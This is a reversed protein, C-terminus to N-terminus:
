EGKYGFIEEIRTDAGIIDEPSLPSHVGWPTIPVQRDTKTQDVVIWATESAYDMLEISSSSKSFPGVNVPPEYIKRWRDKGQREKAGISLRIKKITWATGNYIDFEYHGKGDFYGHITIKDKENIPLVQIEYSVTRWGNPYLIETYGTIRNLKIPLQYDAYKIKDFRYLTPWFLAGCIILTICIIGCLIIVHNERMKEAM